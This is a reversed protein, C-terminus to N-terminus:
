DDELVVGRQKPTLKRSCGCGKTSNKIIVNRGNVKKYCQYRKIGGARDRVAMCRYGM